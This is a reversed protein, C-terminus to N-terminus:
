SVKDVPLNPDLLYAGEETQLVDGLGARRLRKIVTKLRETASDPLMTQEPWGIAVLTEASVARGPHAVRESALAALVRRIM